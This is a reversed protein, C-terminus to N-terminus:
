ELKMFSVNGLVPTLQQFHGILTSLLIFSHDRNVSVSRDAANGSTVRQLM